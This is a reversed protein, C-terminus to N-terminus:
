YEDIKITKSLEADLSFEQPTNTQGIPHLLDRQFLHPVNKFVATQKRGVQLEEIIHFFFCDNLSDHTNNFLIVLVVSETNPHDVSQQM